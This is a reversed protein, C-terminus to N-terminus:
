ATFFDLYFRDLQMPTGGHKLQFDADVLQAHAKKLQDYTHLRWDKNIFSFPLRYSIKKADASNKQKQFFVFAAARWLQESWFAIWFQEPFEHSVDQWMAWFRQKNKGFFYESLRFLSHDPTLIKELWQQFFDSSKSGVVRQYQMMSCAQDLPLKDSVRFLHDAFTKNARSKPYLWERLQDYDQSTVHEPFMITEAHKSASLIKPDRTCCIIRHPGTYVAFHKMWFSRKKADLSDLPGCWFIITQGLFSMDLKSIISSTEDADLDLTQIEHELVQKWRTLAFSFFVPHYQASSLIIVSANSAPLQNLQQLMAGM